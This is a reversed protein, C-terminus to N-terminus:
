ETAAVSTLPRVVVPSRMTLPVGVSRVAGAATSGVAVADSEATARLQGAAVSGEPMPLVADVPGRPGAPGESTAVTGPM